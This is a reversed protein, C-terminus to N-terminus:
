HLLPLLQVFHNYLGDVESILYSIYLTPGCCQGCPLFATLSSLKEAMKQIADLKSLHTTSAGMIAVSGYECVPRVFSKFAVALGRPGLFDIVRYLAGMRQRFYTSMNEIMSSWTLRHDFYFGLFKLNDVEEISLSDM